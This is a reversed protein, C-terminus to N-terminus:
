RIVGAQRLVSFLTTELPLEPQVFVCSIGRGYAFSALQRRYETVSDRYEQLLTETVSIEKTQATESDILRLEGQYGPALEEKSLIQM